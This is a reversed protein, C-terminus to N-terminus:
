RKRTFFYFDAIAFGIILFIIPMGLFLFAWTKGTIFVGMKKMISFICDGLFYGFVAFLASFLGKIIKQKM